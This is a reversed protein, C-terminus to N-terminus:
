FYHLFLTEILTESIDKVLHGFLYDADCFTWTVPTDQIQASPMLVEFVVVKDWAPNLAM